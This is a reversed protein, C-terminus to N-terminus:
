TIGIVHIIHTCVFISSEIIGFLGLNLEVLIESSRKKAVFIFCCFINRFIELHPLFNADQQGPTVNAVGYWIMAVPSSLCKYNGGDGDKVEQCVIPCKSMGCYAGTDLNTKVVIENAIQFKMANEQYVKLDDIFLSQELYRERPRGMRCGNVIMKGNKIELITKSKSSKM